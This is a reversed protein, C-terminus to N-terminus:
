VLIGNRYISVLHKGIKVLELKGIELSTSNKEYDLKNSRKFACRLGTYKLNNIRKEQKIALRLM